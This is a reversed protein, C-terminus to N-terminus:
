VVTKQKDTGKDDKSVSSINQATSNMFGLMIPSM